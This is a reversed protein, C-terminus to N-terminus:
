RDGPKRYPVPPADPIDSPRPTVEIPRPSPPGFAAQMVGRWPDALLEHARRVSEAAIVEGARQRQISREEVLEKLPRTIVARGDADTLVGREFTLPHRYPPPCLAPRARPPIIRTLESQTLPAGSGRYAGGTPGRRRAQALAYQRAVKLRKREARGAIWAGITLQYAFAGLMGGAISGALFAPSALVLMLVTM